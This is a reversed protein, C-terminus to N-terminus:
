LVNQGSEQTCIEVQVLNTYFTSGGGFDALRDSTTANVNQHDPSFIPWWVSTTALVGPRVDETVEAMLRCWGRENSVKVWQGSRIQREQADRPHIRLIPQGEKTRLTAVNGFSSSVFHHAVPSLLPLPDGPRPEQDADSNDNQHRPAHQRDLRLPEPGIM